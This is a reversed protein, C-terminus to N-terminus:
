AQIAYLGDDYCGTFVLGSAVAPTSLLESDGPATFAWVPTGSRADLAQLALATSYYVRGGAVALGYVGTAAASRTWVQKSTAASIAHLTGNNDRLYVVGDAVAVSSEMGSGPHYTWLVQGNAVDVKYLTGSVTGVYIGGSDITLGTGPPDDSSLLQKHWIETGSAAHFAYLIGFADLAYFIGGATSLAMLYPEQTTFSMGKTGTAADYAQPAATDSTLIVSGGDVAWTRKYIAPAGTDVDWVRTGVVARLAYFHGQASSFCVVDGVVEPAASVSGAPFSWALRGTAITVAYVNNDTSGVYVVGNAAGPNADVANGTPFKWVANRATGAGYYKQM